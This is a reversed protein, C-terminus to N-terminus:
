APCLTASKKIEYLPIMDVSNAMRRYAARISGQAWAPVKGIRNDVKAVKVQKKGAKKM